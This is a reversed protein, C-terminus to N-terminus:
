ILTLPNIKSRSCSGEGLLQSLRWTLIGFTDHARSFQGLHFIEEIRFEKLPKSGPCVPTLGTVSVKM